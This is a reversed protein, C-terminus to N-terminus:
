NSLDSEESGSVEEKVEKPKAEQKQGKFYGRINATEQERRAKMKKAIEENSSQKM